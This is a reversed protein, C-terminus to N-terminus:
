YGSRRRKQAPGMKMRKKAVKDGAVTPVLQGLFKSNIYEIAANMDLYKQMNIADDVIVNFEAESLKKLVEAQRIKAYTRVWYQDNYRRKFDKESIQKNVSNVISPQSAIYTNYFQRLYVKISPVDYVYSKIYYKEFLNKRTVGYNRMFEQMKKSNINAVLRWPANRDILFGYKKATDRYSRYFRSSFFDVHKNIDISHDEEIFEVCLGSINPSNWLNAITGTRTFPANTAFLHIFKMFEEMFMEFSTIDKNVDTRQMYTQTFVGYVNNVQEHSFASASTWGKKPTFNEPSLYKERSFTPAGRHLSIFEDVFLDYADVVFNLAFVCGGGKFQKLNTESPYVANGSDDIRGYLTDEYWFDITNEKSVHQNKYLLRQKHLNKAGLSNNGTPIRRRRIERRTLRQTAM